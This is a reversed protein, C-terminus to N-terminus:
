NVLPERYGLVDDLSYDTITVANSQNGGLLWIRDEDEKIFFGVHGSWPNRGRRLVVVSGRTPNDISMGWELWSRALASRTGQIGVQKFCWNVFSSCWPTEDSDANLETADHYKLIRQNHKVGMIEKQGLEETAVLLWSPDMM